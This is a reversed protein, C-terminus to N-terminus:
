DEGREGDWQKKRGSLWSSQPFPITKPPAKELQGESTLPSSLKRRHEAEASQPPEKVAVAVAPATPRGCHKQAFGATVSDETQSKIM